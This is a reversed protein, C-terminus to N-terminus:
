FAKISTVNEWRSLNCCLLVLFLPSLLHFMFPYLFSAAGRQSPVEQLNVGSWGGKTHSLAQLIVEGLVGKRGDREKKYLVQLFFFHSQIQSSQGCLYSLPSEGRKYKHTLFVVTPIAAISSNLVTMNLCLFVGWRGASLCLSLILALLIDRSRGDGKFIQDHRCDWPSVDYNEMSLSLAESRSRRLLALHNKVASVASFWWVGGSGGGERGAARGGEGEEEGWGGTEKHKGRVKM